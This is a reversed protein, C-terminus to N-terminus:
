SIELNDTLNSRAIETDQFYSLNLINRVLEWNKEFYLEAYVGCDLRGPLL